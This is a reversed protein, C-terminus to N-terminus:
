ITSIDSGWPLSHTKVTYNFETKKEVGGEVGEEEKVNKKELLKSSLKETPAPQEPPPGRSLTGPQIVLNKQVNIM